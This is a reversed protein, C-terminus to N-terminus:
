DASLATLIFGDLEKVASSKGALGATPGMPM